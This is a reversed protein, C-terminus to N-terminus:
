TYSLSSTDTHMVYRIYKIMKVFGLTTGHMSHELLALMYLNTNNLTQKVLYIDCNLKRVITNGGSAESVLLWPFANYSWFQRGTIYVRPELSTDLGQLGPHASLLFFYM